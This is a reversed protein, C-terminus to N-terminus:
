RSLRRGSLAILRETTSAGPPAPTALDFSADPGRSTPDYFQQMLDLQPGALAEDIEFRRGLATALDWTHISNDGIFVRVGIAAPLESFPLRLTMASWDVTRWATMASGSAAAFEGAVDDGVPSPEEPMEGGRLGGDFVQQMWVMHALLDRVQWDRCPTPRDLDAATVRDIVAQAADVSRQCHEIAETMTADM